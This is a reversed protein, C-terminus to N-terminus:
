KITISEGNLRLGKINSVRISRVFVKNNLGGQEPSKSKKKLMSSIESFDVEFGDLFYKSNGKRLYIVELYLNGKHEIFPTDKVRIGWKRKAPIFEKTEQSDEKALGEKVLRRNVMNFYGTGSKFIMCVSGQTKKTIRGEYVKHEKGKVELTSETDIGIIRSGKFDKLKELIDM